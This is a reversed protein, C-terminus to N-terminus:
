KNDDKEGTKGVARLGMTENLKEIRSQKDKDSM